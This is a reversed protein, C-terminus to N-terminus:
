PTLTVGFAYELPTLYGFRKRPRTNLRYELKAIDMDLLLRYDTKKPCVRRTLGIANEVSGKQWSSYSDCFYTMVGLTTRLDVHRRNEQGNDFTISRRLEAPMEGLRSEIASRMEQPACREIRQLLTLGLAREQLVMLAATSQRNIATDAEWHGPESRANAAQPREDLSTRDPTMVRRTKKSVRKRRRKPGCVLYVTLTPEVRFIYQYVTEHSVQLEPHDKRIRGAIQEPSWGLKLKKKIYARVRLNAVRSRQRSRRRRRASRSQAWYAQYRGNETSNCKIERTIVSPHRGLQRAIERRSVGGRLGIMIEEREAHSLVRYTRTREANSDM